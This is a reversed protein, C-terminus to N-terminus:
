QKGAVTQPSPGRRLWIEENCKPDGLWAVGWLAEADDRRVAPVHASGHHSPDLGPPRMPAKSDRKPLPLREEDLVKESLMPLPSIRMELMRQDVVPSRHWTSLIHDRWADAREMLGICQAEDLPPPKPEHVGAAFAAVLFDNKLGPHFVSRLKSRVLLLTEALRKAIALNSLPKGNCSGTETLLWFPVKLRLLHQGSMAPTQVQVWRDVGLMRVADADDARMVVRPVACKDSKLPHPVLDIYMLAGRLWDTGQTEGYALSQSVHEAVDHVTTCTFSLVRSAM